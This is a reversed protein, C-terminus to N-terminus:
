RRVGMHYHSTLTTTLLSTEIEHHSLDRSESRRTHLRKVMLLFFITVTNMKCQDSRNSRINVLSKAEEEEEEAEKKEKQRRQKKKTKTVEIEETLFFLFFCMENEIGLRTKRRENKKRGVIRTDSLM